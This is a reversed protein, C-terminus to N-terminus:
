ADKKETLDSIDYTKQMQGKLDKIYGKPEALEKTFVETFERSMSKLKKVLGAASRALGPLDEPKVFIIAVVAILLLEGWSPM